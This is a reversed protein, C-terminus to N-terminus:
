SPSCWLVLLILSLMWSHVKLTSEIKALPSQHVREAFTAEPASM